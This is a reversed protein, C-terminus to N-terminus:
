IIRLRFSIDALRRTIRTKSAEYVAHDFVEGTRPRFADVEERLYRDRAGEGEIAVTSRRVRVPPGPDIALTVEHSGDARQVPTVTITPSYRGFPELAARAEDEAVRLLYELRREPVERGIADVLSLAVRVNEEMAEDVGRIHVANVRAAWAPACALLLAITLFARLRPM